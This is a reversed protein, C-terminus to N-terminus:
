VVKYSWSDWHVIDQSLVKNECIYHPRDLLPIPAVQTWSNDLYVTSCWHLVARDEKRIKQRLKRADGM